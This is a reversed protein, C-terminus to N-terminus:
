SGRDSVGELLLQYLAHAAPGTQVTKPLALHIPVQYCSGGLISLQKINSTDLGSLMHEPVRCFGVGAYVAKWAHYFNDVTIRQQSKLWGVNQDDEENVSGLDRVIIQTATLLDEACVTEKQALCHQRAVVPVMTVVGFAEALYNTVPLNIIAIDAQQELVADRTSSLSTERVQVSTGKNVSLFKNLPRYLWDPNCLHDISVTIESEIGKSLQGGLMELERAQALLPEARRLMSKGEDTLVARRGDIRILTVGLQQELKKVAYILTTHSKNLRIAAGQFSGAKDVEFLTLWQDLTTKLRM